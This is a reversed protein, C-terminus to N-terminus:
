VNMFRHYSWLLRRVEQNSFSMAASHRVVPQFNLGSHEASFSMFHQVCFLVQPVGSLLNSLLENHYCRPSQRVQVMNTGEYLDDTCFLSLDNMGLSRNVSIYTLDTRECGRLWKWPWV